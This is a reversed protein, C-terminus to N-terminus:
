YKMLDSKIKSLFHIPSFDDIYNYSKSYIDEKIFETDISEVDDYIQIMDDKYLPCNIINPNNTLIKKNYAIAQQVRASYSTVGDVKIELVCKTNIIYSLSTEYDIFDGYEIGDRHVRKEIPVGVLYFRCKLHHSDFYDYLLLLEDFRGKDQGLFAVDSIFRKSFPLPYYSIGLRESELKDFIYVLDFKEKILDINLERAAPVDLLFLINRTKQCTLFNTSIVKDVYVPGIYLRVEEEDSKPNYHMLIRKWIHKFPLWSLKGSIHHWFLRKLLANPILEEKLTLNKDDLFDDFLRKAPEYTPMYITFKM